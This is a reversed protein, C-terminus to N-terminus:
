GELRIGNLSEHQFVEYIIHGQKDRKPIVRSPHLPYLAVADGRGNRVIEAYGNGHGLAHSTLAEKFSMPTMEDNPSVFLLNYIPNEVAKEKGGGELDRFVRFPLKGIDESINRICSYYASLGLSNSATVIKGASSSRGGMADILWAAPSQLDTTSGAAFLDVIISM